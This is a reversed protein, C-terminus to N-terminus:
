LQLGAVGAATAITAKRDVDDIIFACVMPLPNLYADPWTAQLGVICYTYTLATPVHALASILMADNSKASYISLARADVSDCRSSVRVEIYLHVGDHSQVISMLCQWARRQGDGCDSEGGRLCHYKERATQLTLVTAFDM